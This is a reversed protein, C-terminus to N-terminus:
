NGFYDKSLGLIAARNRMKKLTTTICKEVVSRDVNFKEAIQPKSYNSYFLMTMIYETKNIGKCLLKFIEYNESYVENINTDDKYLSQIQLDNHFELYMDKDQADTLEDLSKVTAYNCKDFKFDNAIGKQKAKRYDKQINEYLTRTGTFHRLHHDRCYNKIKGQICSSAYTTFRIKKSPDFTDFCRYVATLGESVLDDRIESFDFNQYNKRHCYSNVYSYVLPILEKLFNNALKLRCNEDIDPNNYAKFFNEEDEKSINKRTENSSSFPTIKRAIGKKLGKVITYKKNKM